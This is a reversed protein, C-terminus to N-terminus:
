QCVAVLGLGATPIAEGSAQKLPTLVGAADYRFFHAEGSLYTDLPNLSAGFVVRNTADVCGATDTKRHEGEEVSRYWCGFGQVEGCGAALQLDDSIAALMAMPLAPSMGQPPTPADAILFVTGLLPEVIPLFADMLRPEVNPTAPFPDDLLELDALTAVDSYREGEGPVASPYSFAILESQNGQSRAAYLRNRWPDVRVNRALFAFSNGDARPFLAKLDIPAGLSVLEDGALDFAFLQDKVRDIGFLVSRGADIAISMSIPFPRPEGLLQPAAPNSIDYLFMRYETVPGSEVPVTSVVYLRARQPNMRVTTVLHKSPLEIQSLLEPPPVAADPSAPRGLQYLKVIVSAEHAVALVDNAPDLDLDRVWDGVDFTGEPRPLEGDTRYVSLANSGFQGLYVVGSQPVPEPLTGPPVDADPM